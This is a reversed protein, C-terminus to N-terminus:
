IKVKKSLFNFYCFYGETVRGSKPFTDTMEQHHYKNKCLNVNLKVDIRTYEKIDVPLLQEFNM